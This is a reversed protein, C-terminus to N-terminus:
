DSQVTPPTTATGNSLFGWLLQIMGSKLGFYGIIYIIAFVFLSYYRVNWCLGGNYKSTSEAVKKVRTDNVVHLPPLIEDNELHFDVVCQTKGPLRFCQLNNKRFGRSTWWEIIPTILSLDTKYMTVRFLGTEIEDVEICINPFVDNTYDRFKVVQSM